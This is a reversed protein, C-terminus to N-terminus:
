KKVRERILEAVVDRAGLGLAIGIGLAIGAGIGALAVFFILKLLAAAEPYVTALALIATLYYIIWKVVEAVFTNKLSDEVRAKIGNGISFGILAIVFAEFIDLAFDKLENVFGGLASLNLLLLAQLLFYFYTYFELFVATADVIDIGLLKSSIGLSALFDKIKIKLLIERTLNRVIKGLFIGALIVVLAWFFPAVFSIGTSFAATMYSSYDVM